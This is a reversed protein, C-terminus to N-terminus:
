PLSIYNSNFVPNSVLGYDIEVGSKGLPVAIPL